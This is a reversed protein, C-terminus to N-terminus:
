PRAADLRRPGRRPTEFCSHGHKCRLPVVVRQVQMVSESMMLCGCAVCVCLCCHSRGCKRIAWPTDLSYAANMGLMPYTYKPVMRQLLVNFPCKSLIQALVM